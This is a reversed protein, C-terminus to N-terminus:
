PAHAWFDRQRDRSARNKAVTIRRKVPSDTSLILIARVALAKQANEMSFPFSLKPNFKSVGLFNAPTRIAFGFDYRGMIWKNSNSLVLGHRSLRGVRLCKANFYCLSEGRVGGM